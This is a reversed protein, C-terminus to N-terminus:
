NSRLWSLYQLETVVVLCSAGLPIYFPTTALPFSKRTLSWFPQTYISQGPGGYSSFKVVFSPKNTSATTQQQQSGAGPWTVVQQGAKQLNKQQEKNTSTQAQQQKNRTNGGVKKGWRVWSVVVM